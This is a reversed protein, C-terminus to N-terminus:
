TEAPSPNEFSTNFSGQPEELGEYLNEEWLSRLFPHQMAELVTIRENPMYWLMKQLLDRAEDSSSPIIEEFSKYPAGKREKIISLYREKFYKNMELFFEPIPGLIAVMVQMHQVYDWVMFLPKRMLMEALICGVSYVDIAETYEGYDGEAFL